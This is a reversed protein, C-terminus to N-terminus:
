KYFADFNHSPVRESIPPLQMYDGYTGKLYKDYGTIAKFIHGEFEVDMYEDFACKPVPGDNFQGWGVMPGLEKVDEQAYKKAINNILSYLMSVSICSCMLKLLKYKFSLEYSFDLKRNYVKTLLTIIRKIKRRDSDDDPVKDFPMVTVWVGHHVKSSWHFRVETAPDWIRLYSVNGGKGGKSIIYYDDNYSLLFKEYDDRPMMIDIDDDWPIFGKHRIAGILTGFILSYNIAHTQCFDHVNDLIELQVKQVDINTMKVM